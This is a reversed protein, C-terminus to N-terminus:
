DHARSRALALAHARSRTLAQVFASCVLAQVRANTFTNLSAFVIM